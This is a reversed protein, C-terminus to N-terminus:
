EGGSSAQIYQERLKYRQLRGTGATKPLSEVFDVSQPVAYDPLHKRCLAIIEEETVDDGRKRIVAKVAEGLKEDPLGIVAVELVQPHQLIVEEIELPLVMKGQTMISDKKRGALFIYGEEDVTALDGTYVYGGRITQETAEPANWYGKMMDPGRAIVEGVQGPQVDEGQEDVVRAEVCLPERGCSKIRNVKEPPGEFIFEEPPLFSVFGIESLGYILVFVSGFLEVARQWVEPPYYGFIFIRRLSSYDYTDLHPYEIIPQFFATPLFIDTVREKDIIQLLTQPALDSPIVLPCRMYFSLISVRPLVIAAFLPAGVLFAGGASMDYNLADLDMLAESFLTEHTHMPQKSLGTTGSTNGFYLLDDDSIEIEPELSSSKSMLDEYGMFDKEAPGIVIFEKVGGLEPRLSEVLNFHRQSCVVAR